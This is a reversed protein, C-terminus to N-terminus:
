DEAKEEPEQEVPTEDAETELSEVDTITEEDSEANQPEEEEDESDNISDIEEVMEPQKQEEDDPIPQGTAIMKLREMLQANMTRNVSEMSIARSFEDKGMQKQMEEANGSYHIELMVDNIHQKLMEQDIKLKESEIISDVILSRELRSKAAPRIEEAMFTEEDTSRLKLYTEFDMNQRELREKLDELVHEEEHALMQPPYNIEANETIQNLLEDFFTKDYSDQHEAKLRDEVAQRFEEVTDYDGMSKLFEDDLEPLELEKVSQVEVTFLATKGQFEEDEDDEAYSHQIEKVDGANVGLLDRAFGPYPWESGSEKDEDPILVQQPTKDTITADEDEEPNLIEGSLNFYVLNGEKAPKDSPVITSANKRMNDIFEDVKQPDFEAPEYPKRVERYDGLDIEPELPVMFVFRVPDYEINELNGPGSPKIEAEDLIKGYDEDLLIDIAEQIIAGEGFHNLIVNYPAKGPRFGPIKTSKAIKRAGRRKYGEFEEQTYTVSLKAQRDALIEKEINL